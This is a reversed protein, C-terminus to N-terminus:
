RKIEFDKLVADVAEDLREVRVEKTAEALVPRTVYSRKLLKFTKGDLVDLLLTGAQFYNPNKASSYADQAKDHLEASDRGYGFYTNIAETSGNNGIIIMYAIILDGGTPVKTVGKKALDETIRQQITAHVQERTDIFGPAAKSGGNIFSFTTGQVPGTNVKTPTGCGALCLVALSLALSSSYKM